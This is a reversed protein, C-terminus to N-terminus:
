FSWQTKEKKGKRKKGFSYRKNEATFYCLHHRPNCVHSGRAPQAHRAPFLYLEIVAVGQYPAPVPPVRSTFEGESHTLGIRHKLIVALDLSGGVSEENSDVIAMAAGAGGLVDVGVEKVLHETLRERRM